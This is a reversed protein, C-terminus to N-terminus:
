QTKLLKWSIVIGTLAGPSLITAIPICYSIVAFLFLLKTKFIFEVNWFQKPDGLVTFISDITEIALTSRRISYWFRHVFASGVGAVLVTQFLFAFATGVRIVWTQPLPFQQVDEGNVYTYFEHQGLASLGGVLLLSFLTLFPWPSYSQRPPIPVAPDPDSHPPDEKTNEGPAQQYVYSSSQEKENQSM